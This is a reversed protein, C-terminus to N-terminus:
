SGAKEVMCKAMRRLWEPEDVAVRSLETAFNQAIQQAYQSKLEGRWTYKKGDIDAFEFHGDDRKKATIADETPLPEFKQCFWSASDFKIGLHELNNNNLRAIIQEKVKVKSQRNQENTKKKMKVLSLFFFSTEGKLRVCDCRPRMCILHSETGDSSKTVVSGLRLIPPPADYMMRFKMIWALREDLGVGNGGSLVESLNKIWKKILGDKELGKIMLKIMEKLNKNESTRKENLQFIKDEDHETRMWREIAEAGAPSAEAVANDMLGRLEDAINDVIQQEADDPNPLCARHTLFAPDLDSSFRDLVKHASERVAALSTLVIAPLLGSTMSVFDEVLKGPLDEEEVSRNKLPQRLNVGSKAYLVVCGHKYSIETKDPNPNPDLEANTLTNVVKECIEDLRTEGTYISVLRLSNRDSGGALLGGLLELTYQYNGDRLFWDLVVIDAKRMTELTSEAPSVVGCIIGLKSFSNIVLGADLSHRSGRGAPDQDNQSSAAQSRSPEVVAGQPGNDQESAMYAEDDVVVATQLFRRALEYSRQQHSDM